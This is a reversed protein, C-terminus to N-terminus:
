MWTDRERVRTRRPLAGVVAVGIATTAALLAFLVTFGGTATPALPGALLSSGAVSGLYRSTFLMGTAMGTDDRGVDHLAGLQLPPM